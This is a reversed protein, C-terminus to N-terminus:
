GKEGTDATPEAPTLRARIRKAIHVGARYSRNQEDDEPLESDPGFVSEAIEAARRLGRAEGQPDSQPPPAARLAAIVHDYARLTADGYAHYEGRPCQKEIEAEFESRLREVVGIPDVPQPEPRPMAALVKARAQDRLRMDRLQGETYSGQDHDTLCFREHAALMDDIAREVDEGQPESARAAGLRALAILRDWHAEIDEGDASSNTCAYMSCDADMREVFAADSEREQMERQEAGATPNTDPTM